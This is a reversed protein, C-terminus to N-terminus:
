TVPKRIVLRVPGAGRVRLASGPALLDGAEAIANGSRSVRAEVLVQEVSSITRGPMMAMSDDLRFRVPWEGVPQRLVALPPGKGDATKAYIFLTMGGQVKQRLAPDLDVSGEIGPAVGAAPSASKAAPAGALGRAEGINADIIAIDPSGAPLASRLRQWQSLADKYRKQELSLSAALWLAKVHNPNLALAREIAAAPKGALSRSGTSALSDAYDAWADANRPELALAKGYAENAKEYDRAIRHAQALEFWSTADKPNRRVAEALQAAAQQARGIATDAAAPTAVAPSPVAPSPVAITAGQPKAMRAAQPLEHRRALAADDGRGLFDYSQALLDWDSDGGEGGAVRAELRSVAEEMAGAAGSAASPGEMGHPASATTATVPPPRTGALRPSGTKLYFAVAGVIPVLSFAITMAVRRPLSQSSGKLLPVVLFVAAISSLTGLLYWFTGTNFM